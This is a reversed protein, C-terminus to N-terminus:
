LLILRRRSTAVFFDKFALSPLTVQPCDVKKSISKLLIWANRKENPDFSHLTEVRLQLFLENTLQLNRSDHTGSPVSTKEILWKEVELIANADKPHNTLKLRLHIKSSMEIAVNVSKRSLKSLSRSLPRQEFVNSCMNSSIEVHYNCTPTEPCSRHTFCHAFSRKVSLSKGRRSSLFRKRRM